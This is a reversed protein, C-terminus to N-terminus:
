MSTALEVDSVGSVLPTNSMTTGNFALTTTGPTDLM